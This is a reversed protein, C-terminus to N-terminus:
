GAEEYEKLRNYLTKLSIGLQEAAEKKNGDLADLTALIVRKEAEELPEGVPVRLYDGDPQIGMQELPFHHEELQEEAMIFAREMASRLERVNGPWPYAEVSKIASETLSKATGHEENLSNLFHQALGVIDGERDRLAPMHLPFQAIRYYLDERLLGSEIADELERNTAAVIRFDSRLEKEGGVRRFRGTELVRLLKVQIDMPMEGLEDLFLTGGAAREFCGRHQRDAGSFSGKEHGFLESEALEAPIAGCNIAVFPGDVNSMLHITEAALEKGTGSEGILLVSAGTPAVKRITRYLKRMPRSSGRMLGFQDVACDLQEGDTDGASVWEDRIDGLLTAVFSEDIPKCFFYRAQLSIGQSAREPDDVEHILAVETQDSLLDGRKLLDLGEGDPLDLAVFAAAICDRHRQIADEAQALSACALHQLEVTDSLEALKRSHESDQDVILVKPAPRTM